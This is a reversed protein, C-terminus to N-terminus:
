SEEPCCTHHHAKCKHSFCHQYVLTKATASCHKWLMFAKEGVVGGWPWPATPSYSATLPCLPCNVWLAWCFVGYWIVNHEANFALPFPLICPCEHNHCEDVWAVAVCISVRNENMQRSIPLLSYIGRKAKNGCVAKVKRILSDKDSVVLKETKNDGRDQRPPLTLTDLYSDWLRVSLWPWCVM